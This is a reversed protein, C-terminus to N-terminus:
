ARSIRPGFKSKRRAKEIRVSLLLLYAFLLFLAYSFNEKASLFVHVVVLGAILYVLRHLHLWVRGLNRVVSDISTAALLFLLFYALSGFIIRKKTILDHFYNELELGTLFILYSLLHLTAYSFVTLGLIRRMRPVGLIKTVGRLHNFSLTLFLFLIAAQGFFIVLEMGPDAGFYNRDCLASFIARFFVWLFPVACVSILVFTRM